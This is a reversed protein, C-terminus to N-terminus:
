RAKTTPRLIKLAAHSSKATAHPIWNRSCRDFGTGQMPLLTEAVPDGPFDREKKKIHFSVDSGRGVSGNRQPQSYNRCSFRWQVHLWGLKLPVLSTTNIM